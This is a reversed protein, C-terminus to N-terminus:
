KKTSNKREYSLVIESKVVLLKDSGQIRFYQNQNEIKLGLDVFCPVKSDSALNISPLNSYDKGQGAAFYCANDLAYNLVAIKEPQEEELRSLETADYVELLKKNYNQAHSVGAFLLLLLSFTLKKM